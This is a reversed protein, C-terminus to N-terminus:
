SIRVEERVVAIEWHGDVLTKCLRRVGVASRGEVFLPQTETWFIRVFRREHLARPSQGVRREETPPGDAIRRALARAGEVDM